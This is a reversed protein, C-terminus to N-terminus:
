LGDSSARRSTEGVLRADLVGTVEEADLEDGGEEVLVAEAPPPPVVAPGDCRHLEARRVGEALHKRAAGDEHM